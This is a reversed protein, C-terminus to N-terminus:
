LNTIIDNEERNWIVESLMALEQECRPCTGQCNGTHTCISPQYPINNAEAITLRVKKLVECIAKGRPMPTNSKNLLKKTRGPLVYKFCEIDKLGMEELRTVSYDVDSKNNHGPILPVRIHMRSQKGNAILYNLNDIVQTNDVGTYITYISPNTDKIDILFEDVSDAIERLNNSPVNLSTEVTIKWRDGCLQRFEKIFASRLLPEGGGFCVGGGTARFYVDDCKLEDYLSSPTDWKVIGDETKCQPNLCYKCNLPCGHFAVLTTIGAGDTLLRHRGIGIM